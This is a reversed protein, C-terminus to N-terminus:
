MAGMMLRGRAQWALWAFQVPQNFYRDPLSHCRLLADKTFLTSARAWTKRIDTSAAPTYRFKPDLISITPMLPQRGIPPCANMLAAYNQSMAQQLNNHLAQRQAALHEASQQQYNYLPFLGDDLINPRNM